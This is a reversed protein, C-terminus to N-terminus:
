RRRGKALKQLDGIYDDVLQRDDVLLNMALNIWVILDQLDKKRLDAPDKNLHSKIQRAVFRDAAPGLYDYTAQVVEEYLTLTIKNMM